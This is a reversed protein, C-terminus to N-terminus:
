IYTSCVCMSFCVYVGGWWLQNQEDAQEGEEEGGWSDAAEQQNCRVLGAGVDKLRGPWVGYGVGCVCVYVCVCVCVCVPLM